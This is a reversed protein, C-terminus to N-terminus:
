NESKGGKKPEIFVAYLIEDSLKGQHTEIFSVDERDKVASKLEEVGDCIIVKM